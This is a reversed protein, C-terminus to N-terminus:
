FEKPLKEKRRQERMKEAMSSSFTFEPNIANFDTKLFPPDDM